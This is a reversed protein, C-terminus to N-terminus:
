SAHRVTSTMEVRFTSNMTRDFARRLAEGDADPVAQPADRPAARGVETTRPADAGDQAPVRTTCAALLGLVTVTTALAAGPRGRRTAARTARIPFTPIATRLPQM